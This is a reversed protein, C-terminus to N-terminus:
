RTCLVKYEGIMQAQKVPNLSTFSAHKFLHLAVDFSIDEAVALFRPVISRQSLVARVSNVLWLKLGDFKFHTFLQLAGALLDDSVVCATCVKFLTTNDATHDKAASHLAKLPTLDLHHISAIQTKANASAGAGFTTDWWAINGTVLTLHEQDVMDLQDQFTAVDKGQKLTKSMALALNLGFRIADSTTRKNGDMKAATPHTGIVAFSDSLGILHHISTNEVVASGLLGACGIHAVVGGVYLVPTKKFISLKQLRIICELRRQYNGCVLTNETALKKLLQQDM